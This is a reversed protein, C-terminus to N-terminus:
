CFADLLILILYCVPPQRARRKHTDSPSSILSSDDRKRKTVLPPSFQLNFEESDLMLTPEPVFPKSTKHVAHSFTNGDDFSLGEEKDYSNQKWDPRFVVCLKHDNIRICEGTIISNNKQLNDRWFKELNKASKYRVNINKLQPVRKNWDSAFSVFNVIGFQDSSKSSTGTQTHSNVLESFLKQEDDTIV